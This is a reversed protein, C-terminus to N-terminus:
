LIRWTARRGDAREDHSHDVDRAHRRHPLVGDKEQSGIRELRITQCEISFGARDLYLQLAATPSVSELEHGSPRCLRKIQEALQSLESWRDNMEAPMTPIARECSWLRICRRASIDDVVNIRM